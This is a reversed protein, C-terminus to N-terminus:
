FYTLTLHVERHRVTTFAFHPYAAPAARARARQPRLRLARRVHERTVRRATRAARDQRRLACPGAGVAAGDRGTSVGESYLIQELSVHLCM